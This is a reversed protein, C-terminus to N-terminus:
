LLVTVNEIKASTSCYSPHKKWENSWKSMVLDARFCVFGNKIETIIGEAKKYFSDDAMKEARIRQGIKLSPLSHKLLPNLFYNGRVFVSFFGGNGSHENLLKNDFDKFGLDTLRQRLNDNWRQNPNYLRWTHKLSGDWIYKVRCNIGQSKLWEQMAKNEERMEM